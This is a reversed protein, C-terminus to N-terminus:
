QSPSLFRTRDFRSKREVCTWGHRKLIDKVRYEKFGGWGVSRYPYYTTYGSHKAAHGAIELVIDPHDAPSSDPGIGRSQLEGRVYPCVQGEPDCM